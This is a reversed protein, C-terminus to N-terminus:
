CFYSYSYVNYVRPVIGLAVISFTYFGISTETLQIVRTRWLAGSYVASYMRRM